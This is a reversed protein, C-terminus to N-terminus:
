RASRIRELLAAPLSGSKIDLPESADGLPTWFMDTEDVRFTNKAASLTLFSYTRTVTLFDVWEKESSPDIKPATTVYYEEYAKKSGGIDVSIWEGTKGKIIPNEATRRASALNWAKWLLSDKPVTNFALRAVPQSANSGDRVAFRNTKPDRLVTALEESASAVAIRYTPDSDGTRAAIGLEENLRAYAFNGHFRGLYAFQKAPFHHPIEPEKAPSSRVACYVLIWVFLFAKM